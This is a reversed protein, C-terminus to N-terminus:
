PATCARRTMAAPRPTPIICCPKSNPPPRLTPRAAAIAPAGQTVSPGTRVCCWAPLCAPVYASKTKRPRAAAQGPCRPFRTATEAHSPHHSYGAGLLHRCISATSFVVTSHGCPNSMHLGIAHAPLSLWREDYLGDPRRFLPHVGKPKRQGQGPRGRTSAGGAPLLASRVACYCM